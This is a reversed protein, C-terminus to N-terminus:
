SWKELAKKDKKDQDVWKKTDEFKELKWFPAKTKLWDMIFNCADFANQRHKSSVGVYVIKDKPFLKGIRHIISVYNIDWKKFAEEAVKLIENETMVPYHELTM